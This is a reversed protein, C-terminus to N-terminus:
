NIGNSPRFIRSFRVNMHKFINISVVSVGGLFILLGGLWLFNMMPEYNIRVVIENDSKLEGITLYLDYFLKHLIEPEAIQQQEIVFLRLEPSITGINHNDKYIEFHGIRSVYNAGQDYSIEKLKLTFQALEINAGLKAILENEQKLATNLTISLCVMAFGLHGLKHAAFKKHINKINILILYLSLWIIMGFSLSFISFYIVILLAAIISLLITKYEFSKGLAKWTVFYSSICIALMLPTLYPLYANFYPAGVSIRNSSFLELFLPYVTGVTVVAAFFLLIFNNLSILGSKSALNIKEKHHESLAFRSFSAVAIVSITALIALIFLGRKPDSAFSHVSTIIGSRVLFTGVVSLIFTLLSLVYVLYRFHPTHKSSILSHLLATGSLWPMLSSNEVPDWFWFGGWGLERYAWWSGLTIGLTLFAWSLRISNITANALIAPTTRTFLAGLTASFAISFGVYGIYLVPPHFALGIDQLIPNLGLGNIPSPFIRDFPNSTSLMMGLFLAILMNHASITFQKFNVPSETITFIISFLSMCCIWMLLSGEHNGWAGSIKYILPKMTHSNNAVIQVSFDSIVFCAILSILAIALCSFQLAILRNLNQHNLKLYPFAILIFAFVLALYSCFNGIEAFM